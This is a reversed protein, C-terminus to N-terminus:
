IEIVVKGSVKRNMLAEIAKPAEALSYTGHIHPNIKGSQYWQLLQMTNQMNGGPNRQAFSGWFVGVIQCGKLLALNLPIKPIDGAAFGV